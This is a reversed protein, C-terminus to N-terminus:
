RLRRLYTDLPAYAQPLDQSGHWEQEFVNLFGSESYMRHQVDGELVSGSPKWDPGRANRAARLDASAQRADGRKWAIFGRFFWANAARANTQCAHAFDQEATTLDRMALSVEGRLVLTGTEESNLHIAVSLTERARELQNRSSASAALLEGKRQFARHNQSNIRALDDLQAMAGAIDGLAVLCNALYYHSDEHEPNMALAERFLSAAKAFDHERKMADMAAHQKGWFLVLTTKDLSAPLSTQQVDTTRPIFPKAEREGQTIDWIQGAGLNTWTETPGRFWHVELRDIKTAAGLGIHM